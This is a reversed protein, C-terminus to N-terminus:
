KNRIGVSVMLQLAQDETFGAAVFDDLIKKYIEATRKWIGREHAEEFLKLQLELMEMIDDVVM